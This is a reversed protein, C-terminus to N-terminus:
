DDFYDDMSTDRYELDSLKYKNVWLTYAEVVTGDKATFPTRARNCDGRYLDINVPTQEPEGCEQRFKVTTMYDDGPLTAFFRRFKRGNYEVAKSFVTITIHSAM